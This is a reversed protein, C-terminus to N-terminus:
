VLKKDKSYNLFGLVLTFLLSSIGVGGFNYLITNMNFIMYCITCMYNIKNKDKVLTFYGGVAFYETKSNKHISGSEDLYVYIRM